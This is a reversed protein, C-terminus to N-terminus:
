LRGCFALQQDDDHAFAPMTSMALMAHREYGDPDITAVDGTPFWEKGERDIHMVESQLVCM